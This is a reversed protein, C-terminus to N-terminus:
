SYPGGRGDGPYTRRDLRELVGSPIKFGGTTFGVLSATTLRSTGLRILRYSFPGSFPCRSCGVGAMGTPRISAM